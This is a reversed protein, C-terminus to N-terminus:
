DQIQTTLNQKEKGFEIHTAVQQEKLDQYTQELNTIISQQQMSPEEM